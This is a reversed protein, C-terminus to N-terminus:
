SGRVESTEDNSGSLMVLSFVADAHGELTRECAWTDTSWVKITYDASGSILNAGHMVLSTLGGTDSILKDGHMELTLECTWTDANWVKITRDSCGSILKDGHVLLSLMNDRIRLRYYFM